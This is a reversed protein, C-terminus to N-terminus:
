DVQSVDGRQISVVSAPAQYGELKEINRRSYEAGASTPGVTVLWYSAAIGRIVSQLASFADTTLETQGVPLLEYAVLIIMRVFEDQIDSHEAGQGDAGLLFSRWNRYLGHVRTMAQYRVSPQISKGVIATVLRVYKEFDSEISAQALPGLAQGLFAQIQDANELLVEKMDDREHSLRFYFDMEDRSLADGSLDVIAASASALVDTDIYGDLHRFGRNIRYSEASPFLGAAGTIANSGLNTDFAIQPYKAAMFSRYYYDHGLRFTYPSDNSTLFEYWTAHGDVEVPTDFLESLAMVSRKGNYAALERSREGTVDFRRLQCGRYTLSNSLFLEDFFRSFIGVGFGKAGRSGVSETARRETATQACRAIYASLTQYFETGPAPDGYALYYGIMSRHDAAASAGEGNHIHVIVSKSLKGKKRMGALATMNKRLFNFLVQYNAVRNEVGLVDLGITVKLAGNLLKVLLADLEEAFKNGGVYASPTHVLARYETGNALNFQTVQDDLVDIDGLGSPIQIHKIGQTLLFALTQRFLDTYKNGGDPGAKVQDGLASRMKYADDFPTFKNSSYIKGNFYRMLALIWQRDEGFSGVAAKVSELAARYLAPDTVPLAHVQQEPRMRQAILVSAIYISEAACEGREYNTKDARRTLSYFPNADIMFKLAQEFLAQEGKEPSSADLWAALSPVEGKSRVPLIGSFHSHFDYRYDFVKTPASLKFYAM